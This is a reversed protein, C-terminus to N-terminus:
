NKVGSQVFILKNQRRLRWLGKAKPFSFSKPPRFKAPFSEKSSSSLSVMEHLWSSNRFPSLRPLPHVNTFLESVFRSVQLVFATLPHFLRINNITHKM